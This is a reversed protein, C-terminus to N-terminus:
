RKQSISAMNRDLSALTKKGKKNVGEHPSLNEQQHFANEKINAWELQHFGNKYRKAPLWIKM